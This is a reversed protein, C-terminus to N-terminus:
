KRSERRGGTVCTDVTFSISQHDHYYSVLCDRCKSLCNCHSISLLQHRPGDKRRNAHPLTHTIPSVRNCPHRVTLEPHHMISKVQSSGDQPRPGPHRQHGNGMHHTTKSSVDYAPRDQQRRPGAREKGHPQDADVLQEDDCRGPPAM